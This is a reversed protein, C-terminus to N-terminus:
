PLAAALAALRRAARGRHSVQDKEADSLEAVTKGHDPLWVIPDYGFGGDGRPERTLIGECTEQAICYRAETLVLVMCCVFRCSREELRRTKELLLANREADSLKGGGAPAGYRSSRVGPEGGLALVELGSDDALVPRRLQQYLHLAKGLSNDLYTSGTEDFAFRVGAESPVHLSFSPFLRRLEIIKHENGTAVYVEGLGGASRVGRPPMLIAGAEV